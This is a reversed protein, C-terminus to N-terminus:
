LWLRAALTCFSVHAPPESDRHPSARPDRQLVGRRDKLATEVSGHGTCLQLLVSQLALCVVSLNM